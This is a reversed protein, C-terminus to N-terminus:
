HAKITYQYYKGNDAYVGKNSFDVHSNTLSAVGMIAMEMDRAFEKYEKDSTLEVYKDQYNRYHQVKIINDITWAIHSDISMEWAPESGSHTNTSIREKSIVSTDYAGNGAANTHLLMMEDAPIGTAREIREKTGTLLEEEVDAAIAVLKKGNKEVDENNQIKDALVLADLIKQNRLFDDMYESKNYKKYETKITDPIDSSQSYDISSLKKATKPVNANNINSQSALIVGGLALALIGIGTNRNFVRKVNFKRQM